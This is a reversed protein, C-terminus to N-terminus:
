PPSIGQPFFRLLRLILVCLRFFRKLALLCLFFFYFKLIQLIQSFWDSFTCIMDFFVNPILAFLLCLGGVIGLAYKFSKMVENTKGEKIIKNLALIGLFPILLEVIVLTTSVTRFKNYGPIYELFFDTLPMLNKGWSLALMLLFTTLIWWRIYGKILFIGM